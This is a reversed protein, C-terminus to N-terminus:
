GIIFGTQSDVQAESLVDPFVNENTSVVPGRSRDMEETLCMAMVRDDKCGPAAERKITRGTKGAIQMFTTMEEILKADPIQIDGERCAMKLQETIRLKSENTTIFGIKQTTKNTAEDLVKRRYLNLYQKDKLCQIVTHGHNNEEVCVWAKNYFHALKYVEKAMDAPEIDGYIAAVVQKTKRDKVYAAGADRGVGGAPDVGMVYVGTPDPMKWILTLGKQDPEFKMKTDGTALLFGVFSADRLHAQQSKIVSGPFVSSAGTVFCDVDNSPYENEFQDADGNCNAVICWRRWLVHEKTLGADLLDQEYPTPEFDEAAKWDEPVEPYFEFWPVFFGKYPASGKDAKWSQWLRYFQGGMGNPTSEIIVEGTYPVGQLSGLLREDEVRSGESVHLFNFTKGRGDYFVRMASDLPRGLGDTSFALETTNASREEPAYLHGWDRKFWNYTFKVIDTFITTVTVQLHAMIGTRMNQEWLAYDLARVGSLTTFGVQRCKLIIDRGKRNNLYDEQPNNPKFFSAKGSLKDKVRYLNRIRERHGLKLMEDRFAVKGAEEGDTALVKLVREYAEKFKPTYHNSM